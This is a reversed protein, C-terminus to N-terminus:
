PLKAESGHWRAGIRALTLWGIALAALPVAAYVLAFPIPLSVAEIDLNNLVLQMGHRLLLIMLLLTTVDSFIGLARRWRSGAREVAQAIAIHSRRDTALVWGIFAVWIFVYRALEESWTLPEFFKRAVVQALVLAVMTAFLLVASGHLAARAVRTLRESV